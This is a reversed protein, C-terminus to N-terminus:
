EVRLGGAQRKCDRGGHGRRSRKYVAGPLPVETISNASRVTGRASIGSSGSCSGISWVNPSNFRCEVLPRTVLGVMFMANGGGAYTFAVEWVGSSFGRGCIPVGRYNANRDRKVALEKRSDDLLEYGPALDEVDFNTEVWDSM